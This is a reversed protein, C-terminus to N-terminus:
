RVAQIRAVLAPDYRDKFQAYTAQAAQQFPATDVDTVTMGKGRLQNVAEADLRTVEARQWATVEPMAATIVDRAAAPLKDWRAKSFLVLHPGYLHRTLTVHRQVEWLSNLYIVSLPNEQGDIVGQGLSTFVEGWVMPVPSAGLNRFAAIHVPNQMTRLKMGRLDAPSAVAGRSTMHRWGNEWFGLGVMARAPFRGLIERGVEGDLVQYAHASDRFLFPLDLVGVQQVFSVLPGTSVATLDVTGLQLGEVMEREEGLQRDPYVDMRVSGSTRDKIVDALRVMAAHTPHGTQGGHGAKLIVVTQAHARSLFPTALAALCLAQRRGIPAKRTM